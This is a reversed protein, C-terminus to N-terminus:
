SICICLLNQQTPAADLRFYLELIGTVFYMVENVSHDETCLRKFVFWACLSALVHCFIDPLLM